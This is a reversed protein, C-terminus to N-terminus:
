MKFIQKNTKTKNQKTKTKNKTKTKKKNTKTKIQNTKRKNTKNTIGSFDSLIFASFLLLNCICM